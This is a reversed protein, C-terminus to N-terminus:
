NLTARFKFDNKRTLNHLFFLKLNTSGIECYWFFFFLNKFKKTLNLVSFRALHKPFKPKMM